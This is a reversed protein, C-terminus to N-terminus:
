MMMGRAQVVAVNSKQGSSRHLLNPARAPAAACAFVPLRNRPGAVGRRPSRQERKSLRNVRPLAHELRVRAVARGPRQLLSPSLLSHSPEGDMWGMWPRVRLELQPGLPLVLRYALDATPAFWPELHTYRLSYQFSAAEPQISPKTSNAEACLPDSACLPVCLSQQTPHVLGDLEGCRSRICQRLAAATVVGERTGMRRAGRLDLGRRVTPYPQDGVHFRFPLRARGGGFKGL